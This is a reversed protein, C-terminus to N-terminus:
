VKLQQQRNVVKTFSDLCAQLRKPCFIVMLAAILCSIHPKASIHAYTKVDVMKFIPQVLIPLTIYTTSVFEWVCYLLLIEYVEVMHDQVRGKLISVM